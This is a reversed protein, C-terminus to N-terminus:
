YNIKNNTSYYIIEAVNLIELLILIVHNSEKKASKDFDQRERPKIFASFYRDHKASRVYIMVTLQSM